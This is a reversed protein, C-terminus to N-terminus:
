FGDPISRISSHGKRSETEIGGKNRVDTAILVASIHNSTQMFIIDFRVEYANIVVFLAVVV